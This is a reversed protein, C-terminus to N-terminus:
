GKMYYTRYFDFLGLLEDTVNIARISDAGASVASEQLAFGTEDCFPRGSSSLAMDLVCVLCPRLLLVHM